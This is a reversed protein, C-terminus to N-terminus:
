HEHSHGHGGSSTNMARLLMEAGDTVLTQLPNIQGDHDIVAYEQDSYSVSVVIPKFESHPPEDGHFHDHHGVREYIVHDVGNRVLASTPVVLQRTWTKRPLQIHGRQGPKFEWTRFVRGDSVNNTIVSNDIEIYFRYTQSESDVHNDMFRIRLNDITQPEDSDGVSISVPTRKQILDSILPLDREWAQGEVLLTRHYALDCLTQGATVVSGPSVKMSEVSYVLDDDPQEQQHSVPTLKPSRRGSIHPQDPQIGLPTHITITRVLKRDRVIGDVDATRLGRVLLEQRRAEIVAQTRRREYQRDILNRRAIGGEEAAPTLRKIEDDIIQLQQVSDLLVGQASALEDGTLDLEVLPDGERVSQGKQVFVKTVVGQLRSSAQLNSVAPQERLFAPVAITETFDRTLEDADSVKVGFTKQASISVVFASSDATAEEADPDHETAPILWQTLVNRIGTQPILLGCFLGAVLAVIAATVLNRRNDAKASSSYTAPKQPPPDTMLTERPRGMISTQRVDPSLEKADSHESILIRAPQPVSESKRSNATRAFAPKM